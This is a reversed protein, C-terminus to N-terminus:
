VGPTDHDRANTHLHLTHKCNYPHLYLRTHPMRNHLSRLKTHTGTGVVVGVESYVSDVQNLRHTYHQQDHTVVHTAAIAHDVISPTHPIHFTSSLIDFYCINHRYVECWQCV